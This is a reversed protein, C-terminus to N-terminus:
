PSVMLWTGYGVWVLGGGATPSLGLALGPEPAPEPTDSRAALLLAAALCGVSVVGLVVSGHIWGEMTEHAEDYRAQAAAMGSSDRRQAAAKEDSSARDAEEWASSAELATYVTGGAALLAGAALVWPWPDTDSAEPATAPGGAHPDAQVADIRAQAEFPGDSPDARAPGRVVPLTLGALLLPLLLRTV